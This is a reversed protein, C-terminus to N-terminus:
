FNAILGVRYNRGPMPYGANYEYNANFLNNIGAYVEGKKGLSALPYSIRTNAVTFAGVYNATPNYNMERAQTTSYMGSQHQADVLVNFRNVVGKVGVSYNVKPAYPIYAVSSDLTTVGGFISWNNTIKQMLSIETGSIKYDSPYAPNTSSNTWPLTPLNMGWAAQSSWVYRNSIRDEFVSASIQTSSSIDWKFGIESHKDKEPSLTNWGSNSPFM